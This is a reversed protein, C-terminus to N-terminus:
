WQFAYSSGSGGAGAWLRRRPFVISSGGTTNQSLTSSNSAFTMIIGGGTSGGNMGGWLEWSQFQANQRGNHSSGRSQFSGSGTISGEVFVVLVGGQGQNFHAGECSYYPPVTQGQTWNQTPSGIGCSQKDDNGNLGGAMGNPCGHLDSVPIGGSYLNNRASGAGTGGSFSTGSGGTGGHAGSIFDPPSPCWGNGGGGGGTKALLTNSSSVPSPFSQGAAGRTLGEGIQYGGAGGSGGSASITPDAYSASNYTTAGVGTPTGIKFPLRGSYIPIDTSATDSGMFPQTTFAQLNNQCTSPYTEHNDRSALGHCAGLGTMSLAGNLILDGAVYYCAFHRRAGPSVTLGSGITLDGNIFVLSCINHRTTLHFFAPTWSSLAVSSAARYFEFEGCANGGITLNGGQAALTPNSYRLGSAAQFLTAAEYDEGVAAGQRRATFRTRFGTFM